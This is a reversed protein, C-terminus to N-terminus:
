HCKLEHGDYISPDYISYPTVVKLTNDDMIEVKRELKKILQRMTEKPDTKELYRM